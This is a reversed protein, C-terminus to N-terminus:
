MVQSFRLDSVCIFTVDIHFPLAHQNKPYKVFIFTPEDFWWDTQTDGVLLVQVQQYIKM